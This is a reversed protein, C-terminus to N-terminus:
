DPTSHAEPRIDRFSGTGALTKADEALVAPDYPRGPKTKLKQRITYDSVNHNGAIVVESVIVQQPPAQAAAPRACVVAGLLALVAATRAWASAWRNATVGGTGKM